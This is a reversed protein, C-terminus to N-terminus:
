QNEAYETENSSEASWGCRVTAAEVPFRRAITKTSRFLRNALPAVVGIALIIRDAGIITLVFIARCVSGACAANLAHTM